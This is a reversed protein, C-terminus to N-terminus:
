TIPVSPLANAVVARVYLLRLIMAGSLISVALLRVSVQTTSFCHQVTGCLQHFTQPVQQTDTHRHTQM